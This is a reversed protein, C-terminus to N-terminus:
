DPPVPYGLPNTTGVGADAIAGAFMLYARVRQLSNDAFVLPFWVEAPSVIRVTDLRLEFASIDWRRTRRVPFMTLFRKTMSIVFPVTTNSEIAAIYSPVCQDLWEQQAKTLWTKFQPYRQSHSKL